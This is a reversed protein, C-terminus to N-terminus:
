QKEEHHPIARRLILARGSNALRRCWDAMKRWLSRELLALRATAAESDRAHEERL